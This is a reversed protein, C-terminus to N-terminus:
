ECCGDCIEEAGPYIANNDDNCDGNQVTVGDNDADTGGSAIREFAGISCAAPVTVMEM